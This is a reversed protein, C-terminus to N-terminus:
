NFGNPFESDFRSLSRWSIFNGQSTNFSENGGFIVNLNDYDEQENLTKWYLLNDLLHMQKTKSSKIEFPLLRGGEDVLLDIEKKSKSQWFYFNPSRGKNLKFKFFENIVFNEFLNGKLYHTKLQEVSELKLLACALGSDYFYLKPSKVLRKNFNKYHPQLMYIIYSAELISLWSKATNPSVGADTAMSQINLLQGTRGACLQLFASFTSLNDINKIQRVDREIYSNIYSPFFDSPHIDKDYIRPYFGKFVADEYSEFSIGTAKLEELSFPLLKLIAARGALSQTIKELLLFNQSGSLVFQVDQNDVIGQIYSFLGPVNQVEDLVAGQPYNSLFGRPDQMALTKNDTDELSVHPLDKYIAKLLTTKGTQRPGTLSIVPYKKSLAIIKETIKRPIM